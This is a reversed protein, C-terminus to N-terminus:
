TTFVTGAAAMEAFVGAIYFPLLPIIVNVLLLEIIDRGQDSLSKLQQAQTAAIGLGFIFALALATM